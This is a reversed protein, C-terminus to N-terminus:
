LNALWGEIDSRLNSNMRFLQLSLTNKFCRSWASFDPNTHRFIKANRQKWIEWAAVSFVEMFFSFSFQDKALSITNFFAISHDWHINLSEWCHKSFECQFLLHYTTEEIMTDCLVCNYDDNDVKYNRRKLLNRSNIRDRFVLWIFVKIKKCCKSKWLWDFPKPPALFSFNRMYIRKSSFINNGWIYTWVDKGQLNETAAQILDNFSQLENFAETSLPTHFNDFVDQNQLYKALSINQDRVFTFLRPFDQCLLHGNWIDKWLLFTTGDGARPTAIGRFHDALRLIDKWWFSGRESSAHPIQGNRYHTHWILQVWPTDVKNVFKHLPKLLLAQNQVILNIVGLGGNEKPTTVKKWAILPKRKANVDNGRWLCDKRARDITDIVTIPLRLTCMAYTPLSSLCSDVLTLRGTMSLWTATATIRREVTNMLPLYHEVRPKTTGMPLGLYTFPFSGVQCGFTAALQMTTEESINIPLMCSKSYNVKLGTSQSFSQLIGKLCFLERQSAKMILLTDDAYQVIPFDTTHSHSLPYSLIGQSAAKNIIYQLLEAALVFLLPSLPDGQRVGRRCKFIKGPTGNLLISSSGSKLISKMWGIWKDPFGLKSLMLIITQHEITDFAKEFDLKLIVIERRSHHCQHLYEYSWALCDQISRSKIFGYQNKHVIRLVTPQIRNALLKTLLKLVCSLLSIPRYDNVRVPNNVKPVLTIFSSNISDLSVTGDYFDQCLKYFDTKIIHWCSKLFCGNFGDPGPAKDPPMKKIIDDIEDTTFPSILDETIEQAQILNDLDFLMQPSETRGMRNKYAEWLVAAKEEHGTFTAGEDSEISTITNIRYRETAAAQFFKTNEDGLKVWRITYRKRWFENRYKLLRGIQNKIIARLNREQIFLPRLEELKDLILMVDNCNKILSNIKSLGKSWKKLARRLNKMKAVIISDSASARVEMNWAQEVVDLFGPHQVWFNEFRFVNAKPIKTGIQVVCPLHDSTPKALPLLLTNPFDITWNLSTFCWDLQELLPAQQMNSWTFNRGKLPIELIGLNSIIANFTNMDSVNGGSRNRDEASRYFNFDGVLMWNESDSINLNYLWDVFQDRETGHCPGYVTTLKWRSDDHRSSFLVTISFRNIEVVQGAFISHNWGMLIGGSAGRSPSFAFKNFRKPALKKMFAPDIAERKTEQLCFIACASEEIKARVAIRKDEDNLGRVNWNLVNWTRTQSNM